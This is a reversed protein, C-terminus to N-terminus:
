YYLNGDRLTVDVVIDSINGMRQLLEATQKASENNGCICIVQPSCQEVDVKNLIASCYAITKGSGPDAFVM